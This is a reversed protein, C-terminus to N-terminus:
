HASFEVVIEDAILHQHKPPGDYKATWYAIYSEVLAMLEPTRELEQGTLQDSVSVVRSTDTPM